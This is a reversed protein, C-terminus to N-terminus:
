QSAKQPIGPQLTTLAGPKQRVVKLEIIDGPELVTTETGEFTTVVGFKNRTIAITHLSAGDVYQGAALLRGARLERASPLTADVEFLQQQVGRLESITQETFSHGMQNIKADLDNIALRLRSRDAELRFINSQKGNASLNLELTTTSKALGKQNLSDFLKIQNNLLALQSQESKIQGQIAEDESLMMPRQSQLLAKQSALAGTLLGMVQQEEAAIRKAEAESIALPKPATFKTAGALQAELRTLRIRLRDRTASLLQLREDAVLYDMSAAASNQASGFGGGQAIATKVISGYSYKYMGPSKIDGLVVIPRLEAIRVFVAPQKLYGESLKRSILDQCQSATQGGVTVAGLLPLRIEGSNGVTFVGSLEAQGLVLVRISDGPAFQHEQANPAQSRATNASLLGFAVLYAAAFFLARCAGCIRTLRRSCAPMRYEVARYLKMTILLGHSGASARHRRTLMLTALRIAWALGSALKTLPLRADGRDFMLLRPGM